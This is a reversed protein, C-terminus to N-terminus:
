SNSQSKQTQQQNESSTSESETRPFDGDGMFLSSLSEAKESLREILELYANKFGSISGLALLFFDEASYGERNWDDIKDKADEMSWTTLDEGERTIFLTCLYLALSNRDESSELIAERMANLHLVLDTFTNDQSVVGNALKISKTINEYITQFTAGFGLMASMRQYENFRSISVGEDATRITYTIENADFTRSLTGDDRRPLKKINNAM